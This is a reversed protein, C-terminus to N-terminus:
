NPRFHAARVTTWEYPRVQFEIRAVSRLKGRFSYALKPKGTPTPVAGTPTMSKGDEDLLVFRVAQNPYKEAASDSVLTTPLDTAVDKPGQREEVIPNLPIGKHNSPQIGTKSQRYNIAGVVKWAGKAIGVAVDQQSPQGKPIALGSIWRTEDRALFTFSADLQETTPLKFRVEPLDKLKAPPNMWAILFLNKDNPLIQSDLNRQIMNPDALSTDPKWAMKKSPQYFALSVQTGDKLTWQGSAVNALFLLVSFTVM